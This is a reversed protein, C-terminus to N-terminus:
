VCVKLRVVISETMAAAAMMATETLACTVAVAGLPGVLGEAGAKMGTPEYTLWVDTELNIESLPTSSKQRQPGGSGPGSLKIPFTLEGRRTQV